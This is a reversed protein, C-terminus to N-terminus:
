KNGSKDGLQFDYFRTDGAMILDHIRKSFMIFPPSLINEKNYMLNRGTEMNMVMGGSAEVIAHGAATDWESCKGFEDISIIDPM